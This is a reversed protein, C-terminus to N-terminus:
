RRGDMLGAKQQAKTQELLAREQKKNQDQKIMGVYLDREYPILNEVDLNLHFHYILSFITRYYNTLDNHAM